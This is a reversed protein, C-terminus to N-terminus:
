LMVESISFSIITNKSLENFKQIHQLKNTPQIFSIRFLLFLLLISYEATESCCNPVKLTYFLIKTEETITSNSIEMTNIFQSVTIYIDRFLTSVCLGNM